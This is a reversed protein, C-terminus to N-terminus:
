GAAEALLLAEVHDLDVLPERRRTARVAELRERWDVPLASAPAPARRPAPIRPRPAPAEGGALIAARHLGDILGLEYGIAVAHAGNRANLSAYLRRRHTKVTDVSVYLRRATEPASDGRALAELHRLQAPTLAPRLTM